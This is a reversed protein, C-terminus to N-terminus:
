RSPTENTTEFRDDPPPQLPMAHTGNNAHPWRAENSRVIERTHLAKTAQRIDPTHSLM